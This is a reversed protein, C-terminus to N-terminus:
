MSNGYMVHSIFPGWPALFPPPECTTLAVASPEGSFGGRAFAFAGAEQLCVRHVFGLDPHPEPLLGERRRRGGCIM